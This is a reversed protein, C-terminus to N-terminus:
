DSLGRIAFICRLVNQQMALIVEGRGTWDRTKFPDLRNMRTYYKPLIEALRPYSRANVLRRIEASRRLVSRSNLPSMLAVFEVVVRGCLVFM